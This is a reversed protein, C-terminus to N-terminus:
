GGAKPKTGDSAEVVDVGKPPTFAFREAAVPLNLRSDSFRIDTNGGLGDTFRMRTPAGDAGLWIDMATIDADQSKPTLTVRRGGPEAGADRVTFANGLTTKSTLVAAPTRDLIDAAPRLTAQALDPDYTWLKIGDSVTLQASPKVIDWRFRGPRSLALEGESTNLLKGREDTQVQSFHAQWTTVGSLFKQLAAPNPSGPASAVVDPRAGPGPAPKAAVAMGATAAWGLGIAVVVLSPHRLPYCVSPAFVRKM